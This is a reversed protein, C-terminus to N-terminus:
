CVHIDDRITQQQQKPWKEVENNIIRVKWECSTKEKFIIETIKRIHKGTQNKYKHTFHFFFFCNSM